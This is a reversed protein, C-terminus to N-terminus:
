IDNLPSLVNDWYYRVSLLMGTFSYLDGIEDLVPQLIQQVASEIKWTVLNYEPEPVLLSLLIDYEPSPVGKRQAWKSKDIDQFKVPESISSIMTSIVKEGLINERVVKIVDCISAETTFFVTRFQGFAITKGHDFLNSPAELLVLSGSPIDNLSM